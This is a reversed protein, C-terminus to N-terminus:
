WLYVISVGGMKIPSYSYNKPNVNGKEEAIIAFRKSLNFRIGGNAYLGYSIEGNKLFDETRLNILDTYGNNKRYRVLGGIGFYPSILFRVRYELGWGLSLSVDNSEKLGAISSVFKLDPAFDLYLRAEGLGPKGPTENNIGGIFAFETTGASLIGSLFMLLFLKKM